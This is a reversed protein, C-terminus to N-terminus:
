EEGAKEVWKGTKEDKRYKQDVAAWAVKHAVEDLSESSGGRRERPDRYQDVANNHAKLFIEQAHPPLKERIWQPIDKVSEYKM